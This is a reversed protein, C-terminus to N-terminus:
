REHAATLVVVLIGKMRWPPNRPAPSQWTVGDNGDSAAFCVCYMGWASCYVYYDCSPISEMPSVIFLRHLPFLRSFRSSFVLFFAWSGPCFIVLSCYAGIYVGLSIM